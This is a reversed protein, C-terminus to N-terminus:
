TLYKTHKLMRITPDPHGPTRALKQFWESSTNIAVNDPSNLITLVVTHHPGPENQYPSILDLTYTTGAANPSDLSSLRTARVYESASWDLIDRLVATLCDEGVAFSCRFGSKNFYYYVETPFHDHDFPKPKIPM